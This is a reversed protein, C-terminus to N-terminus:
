SFSLAEGSMPHVGIRERAAVALRNFGHRLDVPATCVFIRIGGPIM